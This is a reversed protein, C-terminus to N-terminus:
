AHLQAARGAGILACHGDTEGLAVELPREDGRWCRSAAALSVAHCFASGLGIAFGGTLVFREVGVALHISAFAAGLARVAEDVRATAWPDGGRYAAAIAEATLAMPERGTAEALSSSLFGAADNAALDRARAALGRGSAIAGLHGRGGCDCRTASPSEDVRLHGIEGGRGSPGVLARGGSFVKNGIGTSVAVVCLDDNPGRLYRYGAAEVDNLVRVRVGPWAEELDAELDHPYRGSTGWLTPAALVKRDVSVPGPFSVAVSQIQGNPDLEARLASMATVLRTRLDPWALEPLRVFSPALGTRTDTLASQAADYIAARLQTGGIDFVLHQESAM